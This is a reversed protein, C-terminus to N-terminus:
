MIPIKKEMCKGGLKILGENPKPQRLVEQSNKNEVLLPHKYRIPGNLQALFM